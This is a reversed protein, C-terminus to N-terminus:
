RSKFWGRSRIEMPQHTLNVMPGTARSHVKDNGHTEIKSLVHVLSYSTEM